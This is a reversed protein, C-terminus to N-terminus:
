ADIHESLGYRARQASSLNDLARLIEKAIRHANHPELFAEFEQRVCEVAHLRYTSEGPSPPDSGTTVAEMGKWEIGRRMLTLCLMTGTGDDRSQVVVNDILTSHFRNSRLIPLTAGEHNENPGEPM